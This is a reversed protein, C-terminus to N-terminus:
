LLTSGQGKSGIAHLRWVGFIYFRNAIGTGRWFSQGWERQLRRGKL